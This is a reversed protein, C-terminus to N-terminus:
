GWVLYGLLIALIGITIAVGYAQVQGTQLLSVARGVNRSVLGVGEAAGDVVSRDFWHTMAALTGYFFRRVGLEEYLDDLYYKRILLTRGAEWPRSLLLAMPGGRWRQLLLALAMGAIAIGMVVVALVIDVSGAEEGHAGPPILFGVFWHAEIGLFGNEPNALYGSVVAGVALLAMPALMVLPSEALHVGHSAEPATEGADAHEKEGADAHEQEVGGKFDGHFTMWIMRTTYVATLFVAVALMYFAISDVAGVWEM